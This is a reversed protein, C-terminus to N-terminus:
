MKNHTGRHHYKIPKHFDKPNQLNIGFNSPSHNSHAPDIPFNTNAKILVWKLILIQYKPIAKPYKKKWYVIMEQLYLSELRMEKGGEHNHQSLVKPM